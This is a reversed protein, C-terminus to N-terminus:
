EHNRRRGPALAAPGVATLRDAFLVPERPDLSGALSVLGEGPWGLFSVRAAVSWGDSGAPAVSGLEGLITLMGSSWSESKELARAGRQWRVLPVLLVVAAAAVPVVFLLPTGADYPDADLRIHTPDTSSVHAPYLREVHREASDAPANAEYRHPPDGPVSYLVQVHSDDPKDIV